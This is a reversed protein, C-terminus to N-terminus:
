KLERRIKYESYIMEQLPNIIQSYKNFDPHSCGFKKRYKDDLNFVYQFQNDLTDAFDNLDEDSFGNFGIKKIKFYNNMVNNSAEVFAAELKRKSKGGSKNLDNLETEFQEAFQLGRLRCKEKNPMNKKDKM